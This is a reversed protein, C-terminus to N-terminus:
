MKDLKQDVAEALLDCEGEVGCRATIDRVFGELL